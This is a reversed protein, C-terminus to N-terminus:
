VQIEIQLAGTEDGPNISNQDITLVLEKVNTLDVAARSTLFEYYNRSVDINQIFFTSVKGSVDKIEFKLTKVKDSNLGLVIKPTTSLDVGTGTNNFDFDLSIGTFGNSTVDYNLQFEKPGLQQLTNGANTSFVVATPNGPIQTVDGTGLSANPLINQSSAFHQFMMTHLTFDGSTDGSVNQDVVVAVETINRFTAENPIDIILTQIKDSVTLNNVSFAGVTTAGANKLEFKITGPDDNATYQIVLRNAEANYSPFRFFRGGFGGALLGHFFRAGTCDVNDIDPFGNIEGESSLHSFVSNSRDAFEPPGTITLQAKSLNALANRSKEDYLLNYNLLEGRNLLYNEFAQPGTGSLGLVTSGIDIGLYIDAREANSRASDVLGFDGLVDDLNEKIAHLWELVPEPAFNFASALAYTSAVDGLINRNNIESADKIGIRGYYQGEPTGNPRQSASVFGPIALSAAYDSQTVLTNHIANRFGIFSSEDNRLGPWTIQFAGGDVALLNKYTINASNTYDGLNTSMNDWISKPLTKYRTLLFAIAGRFESGIRDIFFDKVNTTRNVQGFLLGNVNDFLALYGPEQNDLFTDMKGILTNVATQQSATLTAGELAGIVVALSQALNANDGTGVIDTLPGQPDLDIFPLLGNWGLSSQFSLLSTMVHDLETIAQDTTLGNDLNGAVVDALIQAYFGILTPQTFKANTDSVGLLNVSDYPLHTAPDIGVGAKFYDLGRSILLDKTATLEAPLSVPTFDLGEIKVEVFSHQAGFVLTKNQNFNIQAIQTRDFGPPFHNAELDLQYFQHTPRLILHYKGRLGNIDM